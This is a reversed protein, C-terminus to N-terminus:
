TPKLVADAWVAPMTATCLGFAAAFSAQSTQWTEPQKRKRSLQDRDNGSMAYPQQVPGPRQMQAQTVPTKM